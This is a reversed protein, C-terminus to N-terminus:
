VIKIETIKGIETEPFSYVCGIVGAFKIIEPNLTNRPHNKKTLLM